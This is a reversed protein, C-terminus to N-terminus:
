HRLGLKALLSLSIGALRGPQGDLGTMWKGHQRHFAVLKSIDVDSVSDGYIVEKM